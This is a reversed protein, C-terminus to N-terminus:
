GHDIETFARHIRSFVIYNATPHFVRYINILNQNNITDKLKETYNVIKNDQQILQQSLPTPIELQLQPNPQEKLETLERDHITRYNLEYVNQIATDAQCLSGKIM